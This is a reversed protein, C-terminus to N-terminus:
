GRGAAKYIEFKGTGVITCTLDKFTERPLMCKTKSKTQKTKTSETQKESVPDSHISLASRSSLQGMEAEQTSPNSTSGLETPMCMYNSSLSISPCLLHISQHIIQHLNPCVYVMHMYTNVHWIWIYMCIHILLYILLYTYIYMYIYKYMCVCMHPHTFLHTSLVTSLYTCIYYTRM